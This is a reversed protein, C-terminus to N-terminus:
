STVVPAITFRGATSMMASIVASSYMPTLSDARALVNMTANFTPTMATNMTAPRLKTFEEM